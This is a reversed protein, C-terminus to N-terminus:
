RWWSFDNYNSFDEDKSDKTICPFISDTFENMTHYTGVLSRAYEAQLQGETNITYIRNNPINLAKYTFVDTIRNGFGAFFPQNTPFLDAITKLCQIKFEEPKKIIIERYIAGFVGDPNLIVPGEPLKVSDQTISKLYSKTQSYQGLPRATLYIIKYGNKVIKSFLAAVGNHTWDRGMLGYLHGRIDSKTITGDIDSVVIKSDSEWLYINGELQRNMGSIKFVVDNIGPQLKLMSLEKSNLILSFRIDRKLPQKNGFINWGLTKNFEKELYEILKRNKNRSNKLEFFIKSFVFFSFYFRGPYDKYGDVRVLLNEPNDLEKVLYNDFTADMSQEIRNNLCSSFSVSTQSCGKLCKCNILANFINLLTNKKSILKLAHDSSNLLNFVKLHKTELERYIEVEREQIRKKAFFRFTLNQYRLNRFHEEDEIKINEIKFDLITSIDQESSQIYDILQDLDANENAPEKEFFLDGQSTITMNIDTIQGNIYVHVTQSKSNYFQLKSFRLQFPSCKLTGDPHRVVIIDNVGSLTIPNINNYLGSVSTFIKNIIGM